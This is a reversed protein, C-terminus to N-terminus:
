SGNLTVPAAPDSLHQRNDIGTLRSNMALVHRSDLTVSLWGTGGLLWLLCWCRCTKIASHPVFETCHAV